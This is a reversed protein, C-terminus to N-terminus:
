RRRESRRADAEFHHRRLPAERASRRTRPRGTFLRTLVHSDSLRNSNSHPAPWPFTVGDTLKWSLVGARSERRRRVRSARAFLSGAAASTEAMLAIDEIGRRSSFPYSTGRPPSLFQPQVTDDKSVSAFKPSCGWFFILEGGDGEQRAQVSRRVRGRAARPGNWEPTWAGSRWGLHDARAQCATQSPRLPM